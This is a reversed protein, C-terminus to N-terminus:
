KPSIYETRFKWRMWCAAAILGIIVDDIIGFGAGVACSLAITYITTLYMAMLAHKHLRKRKRIKSYALAIAMLAFWVAYIISVVPGAFLFSLVGEVAPEAYTLESVSAGVFLVVLLWEGVRTIANLWRSKM